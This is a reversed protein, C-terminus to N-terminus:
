KKLNFFLLVVLLVDRKWRRRKWGLKIEYVEWKVDKLRDM